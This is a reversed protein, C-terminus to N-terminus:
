FNGVSQASAFLTEQQIVTDDPQTDNLGVTRLVIAGQMSRYSTYISRLVSGRRSIHNYTYFAIFREGCGMVADVPSQQRALEGVSEMNRLPEVGRVLTKSLMAADALRLLM